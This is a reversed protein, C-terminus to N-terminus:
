VRVTKHHPAHAESGQSKIYNGPCRKVGEITQLQWEGNVAHSKNQLHHLLREDVSKRTVACYRTLMREFIVWHTGKCKTLFSSTPEM